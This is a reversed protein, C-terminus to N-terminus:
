RGKRRQPSDSEAGASESAVPEVTTEVVPAETDPLLEFKISSSTNFKAALDTNTEIVDGKGYTKGDQSHHGGGVLKFRM